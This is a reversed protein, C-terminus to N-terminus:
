YRRLASRPLRTITKDRVLEILAPLAAPGRDRVKRAAAAIVQQQRRSREYDSDAHRSRSYALATKGNIEHSGAKLRLGKKSLHMTPDVLKEELTVEIGGISDILKVLGNFDVLAYYDIETDFAFELAKRTKKLAVKKKGSSRQYSWFLTNIGIVISRALGSRCTSPTAHAPQGHVVRGSDPDITAVIIADTREGAIGKRFDSGLLLVSLRGDQGLIEDLGM